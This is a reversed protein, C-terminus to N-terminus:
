NAGSTGHSTQHYTHGAELEDTSSIYTGSSTYHLAEAEGSQYVINSNNGIVFRGDPNYSSDVFEQWTMGEEAQYTVTTNSRDDYVYFEIMNGGGEAEIHEGASITTKVVGDVLIDFSEAVATDDYIKLVDGELEVTPTAVQELGIYSIENSLESPKFNYGTAKVAILRTGGYIATSLDFEDDSLTKFLTGDVYLEYGSVFNGNTGDEAIHLINSVISISPANLQPQESQVNVNVKEYLSVDYEGNSEIDLTGSPEVGGSEEVAVEVAAYNTVDHTGNDYITLKGEPKVYGDPIVNPVSVVASSYKSVDHTGNQTLEIEGEPKILRNIKTAFQPVPIAETEGNKSRIADAIESLTDRHIAYYNESDASVTPTTARFYVMDSGVAWMIDHNTWFVVRDIDITWTGTTDKNFVWADAEEATEIEVRYWPQTQNSDELTIAGRDESLHYPHTSFVLDYCGSLKNLRIWVYPYQALLDSPIEPLAVGNYFLKDM